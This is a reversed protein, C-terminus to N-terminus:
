LSIISGIRDCGYKTVHSVKRLNLSKCLLNVDTRSIMGSTDTDALNFMDRFALEETIRFKREFLLLFQPLDLSGSNNIDCKTIMRFLERKTPAIDKWHEGTM